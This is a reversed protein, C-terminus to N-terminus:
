CARSKHYGRAGLSVGIAPDRYTLLLCSSLSNSSNNRARPVLGSVFRLATTEASFVAQLLWPQTLVYVQHGQPQSSLLHDSRNEQLNRCSSVRWCSKTAWNPHSVGEIIDCIYTDLHAKLAPNKHSAVKTTTTTTIAVLGAKYEITFQQTASLNRWM